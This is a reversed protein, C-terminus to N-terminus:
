LRPPVFIAHPTIPLADTAFALVTLPAQQVFLLAFARVAMAPCGHGHSDHCGLGASVDCTQELGPLGTVLVAIVLVIIWPTHRSVRYRSRVRGTYRCSQLLAFECRRPHRRVPPPEM